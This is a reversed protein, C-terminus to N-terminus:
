MDLLTELVMKRRLLAERNSVNPMDLADNVVDLLLLLENETLVRPAPTEPQAPQAKPKQKRAPAAPPQAASQQAVSLPESPVFNKRKLLENLLQDAKEAKPDSDTRNNSARGIADYVASLVLPGGTRAKIEAQKQIPLRNIKAQDAESLFVSYSM